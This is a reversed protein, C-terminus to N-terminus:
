DYRETDNPPCGSSGVIGTASGTERTEIAVEPVEDTDSRSSGVSGNGKGVVRCINGRFIDGDYYGGDICAFLEFIGCAAPEDAIGFFDEDNGLLFHKTWKLVEGVLDVRFTYADEGNRESILSELHAVADFIGGGIDDNEGIIVSNPGWREKGIDEGTEFILFNAADASTLPYLRYPLAHGNPFDEGGETQCDAVDLDGGRGVDVASNGAKRTACRRITRDDEFIGLKEM